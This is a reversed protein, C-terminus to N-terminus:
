DHPHAPEGARSERITRRKLPPVQIDRKVLARNVPSTKQYRSISHSHGSGFGQPIRELGSHTSGRQHHERQHKIYGIVEALSRKGFSVVGYGEQWQLTKPKV